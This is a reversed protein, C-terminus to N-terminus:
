KQKLLKRIPYSINGERKRKKKKGFRVDLSVKHIIDFGYREYIFAYNLIIEKSYLIEKNWGFGASVRLDDYGMRLSFENILYYESGAHFRVRQKDTKDVDISLLLKEKWIKASVGAKINILIDEDYEYESDLVADEIVWKLKSFVNQVNIGFSINKSSRYLGGFDFGIGRASGHETLSHTLYKFAIGVSYDEGFKQGFAFMFANENDSFKETPNGYIDSGEIGTIGYNIWSIGLSRDWALWTFNDKVPLVYGAYSHRRGINSYSSMFTVSHRRIFPLGAPNWYVASPNDPISVFANGMAAARADVGLDLFAAAGESLKEDEANAIIPYLLIIILIIKRM